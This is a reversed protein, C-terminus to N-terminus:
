LRERDCSIYKEECGGKNEQNKGVFERRTGEEEKKKKDLLSWLQLGKGANRLGYKETAREGTSREESKKRVRTNRTKKLVSLGKNTSLPIAQKDEPRGWTSFNASKIIQRKITMGEQMSTGGVETEGRSQGRFYYATRGRRSGNRESALLDEINRDSTRGEDGGQIYLSPELILSGTGV